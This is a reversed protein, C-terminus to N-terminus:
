RSVRKAFVAEVDTDSAFEPDAVSLRRRVEAHQEGSLSLRSREQEVFDRVWNGLKDQRDKPLTAAEKFAAELAKTM